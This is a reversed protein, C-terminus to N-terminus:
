ILYYRVCFIIMNEILLYSIFSLSINSASFHYQIVLCNPHADLNGSYAFAHRLVLNRFLCLDAIRM